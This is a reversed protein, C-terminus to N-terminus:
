SGFKLGLRQTIKQKLLPFFYLPIYEESKSEKSLGFIREGYKKVLSVTKADTASITFTDSKVDVTLSKWFAGTDRLTVRDSPQGKQEKLEITLDSYTPLIESGDARRGIFMQGMNLEEIAESTEVITERVVETIDFGQLSRQLSHLTM